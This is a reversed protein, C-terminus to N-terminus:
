VFAVLVSSRLGRRYSEGPTRIFVFYMFEVLETRGLAALNGNETRGLAALDGHETRGLAALDGHETRGLAAGRLAARRLPALEGYLKETLPLDVPWATKKLTNQLPCHLTYFLGSYSGAWFWVSFM